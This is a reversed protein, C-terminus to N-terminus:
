NTAKTKKGIYYFGNSKNGNMTTYEIEKFAIKEFNNLLENIWQKDHHRCVAGEPLEFVGYKNYKDKFENYRKLNREDKNLLFDNIYIIGDKKLVRQIESILNKQNKDDAICTLVALLIVSDVCNDPLDIKSNNMVRFDINSNIKEAREIMGKSFDIGILSKYGNSYLENLTRGYGCGVDLITDNKKVYKSFEEIQFPTSFEKTDSVKNWYDKQEM